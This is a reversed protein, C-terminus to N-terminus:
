KLTIHINRDIDKGASMSAGPCTTRSKEQAERLRTGVMRIDLTFGAAGSTLTVVRFSNPYQILSPSSVHAVNNRKTIKAIHYHGSFVAKVNPNSDIIKLYDAKNAVEHSTSSIPYVIPFHHFIMAPMGSNEKLRSDLFRLNADSFFGRSTVRDDYAGDLAIFLMGNKKFSYYTNGVNTYRNLKRMKELLTERHMGSPSIDHNGTTWYWPVNLRNAIAAFKALLDASPGDIMDGTFMVFDIGQMNNIQDVADELMDTSYKGMRCNERNSGPNFHDDSIQVFTVTNGVNAASAFQAGFAAISILLAFLTLALRKASERKQM